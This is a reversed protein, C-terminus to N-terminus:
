FVRFLFLVAGFIAIAAFSRSTNNRSRFIIYVIAAIGVACALFRISEYGLHFVPPWKSILSFGKIYIKGLWCTSFVVLSMKTGLPLVKSWLASTAVMLMIWFLIGLREFFPFGGLDAVMSFVQWFLLGSVMGLWARKHETIGFGLSQHLEYGGIALLFLLYIIVWPTWVLNQALFYIARTIFFLVLLKISAIFGDSIKAVSETIFGDM